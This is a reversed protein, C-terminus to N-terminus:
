VPKNPPMIKRQLRPTFAMFMAKASKSRAKEDQILSKRQLLFYMDLNNAPFLLDRILFM